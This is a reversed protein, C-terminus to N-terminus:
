AASPLPIPKASGGIRYREPVKGTSAYQEHLHILALSIGMVIYFFDHYWMDAFLSYFLFGVLATRMAAVLWGLEMPGFRAEYEWRIEHIRRITWVFLWAYLGFVVVGGEALAWLYSNHPPGITGFPDTVARESEFNGIGVGFVPYEFWVRLASQATRFRGGASGTAEVSEDELVESRVGINTLRQATQSPLLLDVVSAQYAFQVVLLLTIAFLGAVKRYNFRGELLVILMFVLANLMGSRSGTLPIMVFTIATVVGWLPYLWRNRITQRGYWLLTLVMLAFYALKNPNRGAYVSSGAESLSRLRGTGWGAQGEGMGVSFYTALLAAVLILVVTKLDRNTRVFFVFLILFVMRTVLKAAEDRTSFLAPGQARQSREVKAAARDAIVESGGGYFTSSLILSVVSAAIILFPKFRLIWWSRERLMEYFAMPLLLVGLANNITLNGVGRLFAPYTFLFTTMLVFVGITPRRVVVFLGVLGIIGAVLFSGTDTAATLISAMVLGVIGAATGLRALSSRAPAAQANAYGAM